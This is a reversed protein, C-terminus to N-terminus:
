QIFRQQWYENTFSEWVNAAVNKTQAANCSTTYTCFIWYCQWLAIRFLMRAKKQCKNMQSKWYEFILTYSNTQMFELVLYLVFLCYYLVNIWLANFHYSIVPCSKERYTSSKGDLQTITLIATYWPIDAGLLSTASPHTIQLTLNNCIQTARQKLLLQNCINLCLAIGANWKQRAMLIPKIGDNM